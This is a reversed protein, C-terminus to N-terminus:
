RWAEVDAARGRIFPMAEGGRAVKPIGLPPKGLPM